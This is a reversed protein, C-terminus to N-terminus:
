GWNLWLCAPFLVEPSPIPEEPIEYLPSVLCIGGIGKHMRGPLCKSPVYSFVCHLFILCIYGIHSHMRMNMWNSSAYAFVHFYFILCICGIHSHKRQHLCNSSVNSFVCHLFALWICGVICGRSYVIQPCMKFRVTSFLLYFWWLHLYCREVSSKNDTM